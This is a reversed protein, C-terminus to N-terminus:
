KSKWLELENLFLSQQRKTEEMLEEIDLSDWPKILFTLILMTKNYNKQTNNKKGLWMFLWRLDHRLAPPFDLSKLLEHLYRFANQTRKSLRTDHPILFPTPNQILQTKVIERADTPDCGNKELKEVLGNFTDWLIKKYISGPLIENLPAPKFKSSNSQSTLMETSTM